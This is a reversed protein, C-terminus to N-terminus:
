TVIPSRGRRTHATTIGRGGHHRRSRPRRHERQAATARGEPSDGLSWYDQCYQNILGMEPQSLISLLDRYQNSSSGSTSSASGSSTQLLPATQGSAVLAASVAGSPLVLLQLRALTHKFGRETASCVYLGSDSPQLARILLGEDLRVVRGDSRVQCMPVCPLPFLSLWMLVNANALLRTCDEYLLILMNANALLSSYYLGCLAM